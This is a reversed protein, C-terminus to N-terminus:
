INLKEKLAETLTQSFNIQEATALDNLWEPVTVNKRITKSHYKRRYAALDIGILAVSKEPHEQQVEKISTAQPYDSYGELALGLVEEAMEYAQALDKGQTMAEPIDPFRVVIYDKGQQFTAPYVLM